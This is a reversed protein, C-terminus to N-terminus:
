VTSSVARLTNDIQKLHRQFHIDFFEIMANLTIKGAAAHKYVVKDFIDNPLSELYRRMKKRKLLWDKTVSELNANSSFKDDSVIAPAKFKIPMKFATLFVFARFKAQFGAKKLVPNYSLKKQVYKISGSEAHMLHQLIELVSWSKEDPKLNLLQAEITSLRLILDNLAKDMKELQREMRQEM